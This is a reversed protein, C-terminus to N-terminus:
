EFGQTKFKLDRSNQTVIRVLKDPVGAPAEVDIELTVTVKAGLLGSLHAIIEDAIRSADRGAREADLQVTGHFRTPTRPAAPAPAAYPAGPLRMPPLQGVNSPAMAEISAFGPSETGETAIFDPQMARAAAETLLQERAAEAKVVLGGSDATIVHHEGARLGLYRRTVEEFGEAFAFTDAEWTLLAVGDTVAKAVAQPGILRPLYLYRAFDDILQSLAVHRGDNDRWLPIEDLSRRLVIAGLEAALLDESKLKRYVREALTDGGSVKMAQWEVKARPNDQGPVLLWQYVEPLMADVRSNAEGCQKTAQKSQQATLNFREPDDAITKWALYDCVHAFIGELKARDAALFVLTNQYLRAGTGRTELLGKATEMASSETDKAYEADPPLVVLRVEREDAVDGSSKPACHVAAFQGRQKAATRLRAELDEYVAPQNRRIQAALEEATRRISPSTDFWYRNNDSYLHTAKGTIRRLADGFTAPPEGPMVTGLKIQVDALGKNAAGTTPASGLFVTRAARRCAELKGLSSVESDITAPLSDRGDVEKAIVAHWEDPLYRCLEFQVQKESVPITCPMILPNHDGSVWLEHIVSAMLRLVGRTRQFRPLASWDGYLREFVEPHIPYAAIIRKEYDTTQCEPPFEGRNSTYLEYFARAVVDRLKFNEAEVIPDFLRRRVIEFGEEATAPRWSSDLRGVVNRLRDLAARGRQGGVEIDATEVHSMLGTDSAPLSVLLVCNSTLKVAETLAQAFTFQTEFTGGPLGPEDHLQRAYAVWEDILIVAPGYTNLLVRLNDGPNTANEDDKEIVAYAEAGGLQWALEGWLTRVKIGGPKADPNGPSIKNGVLVVRKARPLEDVCADRLIEDLGALQSPSGGHAAHFVALMSHTKGGGFNTQLQVVPDGGSQGALRRVTSVLLRKLSDTLYTRRFFEAPERYEPTGEGLYVQWLDAAFEAQQFMGDMVDQHPTIVDRWAPLKKALASEVAASQKRMESRTEEEYRQRLLEKKMKAVEAAEPASVANLLREVSDLARYADDKTFQKQHAWDNRTTRLESVISREGHGLTQNFVSNWQDWLLRLLAQADLHPKDDPGWDVDRAWQETCSTIWYNGYKASLEREVFPLLGNRLLELAKGVREVNSQAM